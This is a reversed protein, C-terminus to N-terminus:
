RALGQADPRRPAGTHQAQRRRPCRRGSAEDRRARVARGGCAFSIRTGGKFRESATVAVMGITGTRPVHTGGCASLDFDPVEVLRLEGTRESEKRLPLAAAQDAPVFRLSVPRDDWIVENTLRESSAIEDLSVERALDITSIEQGMHFSVTRVGFLRDFAASLLHQGTHQQMHDFRRGWDIEGVVLTGVGLPQDTVHVVDGNDGDLVDTVQAGGLTGTDFPQGGSTPYFATRDLVVCYKGENTGCAVVAADFSRTLPDTYYLRHTM